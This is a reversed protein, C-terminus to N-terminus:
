DVTVQIFLTAQSYWRSYWVSYVKYLVNKSYVEKVVSDCLQMLKTANTPSSEDEPLSIVMHLAARGDEKGYFRKIEMMEAVASSVDCSSINNGGIYAGEFTKLDNEIYKCERTLQNLPDLKGSATTKEDNLIYGVSDRLQDIAGKADTTGKINWVKCVIGKEMKEKLRVKQWIPLFINKGRVVKQWSPLFNIKQGSLEALKASLM